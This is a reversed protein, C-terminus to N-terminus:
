NALAAGAASARGGPFMTAQEPAGFGGAVGRAMTAPAELSGALASGFWDLVARKADAVVAAPLDAFTTTACFTALVESVGLPETRRENAPIIM